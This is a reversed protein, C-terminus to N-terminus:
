RGPNRAERLTQLYEVLDALEQTTLAKHLDAPMLSVASRTVSAVDDMKFTRVLSEADKLTVEAPTKSVL